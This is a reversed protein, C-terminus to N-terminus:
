KVNVSEVDCFRAVVERKERDDRFVGDEGGMVQFAMLM